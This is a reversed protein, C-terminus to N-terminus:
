MYIGRGRRRLPGRWTRLSSLDATRAPSPSLVDFGAEKLWLGKLTIASTEGYKYGSQGYVKISRKKTM